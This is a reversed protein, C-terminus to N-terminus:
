RRTTSGSEPGAKTTTPMQCNVFMQFSNRNASVSVFEGSVCGTVTESWFRAPLKAAWYLTWSAPARM